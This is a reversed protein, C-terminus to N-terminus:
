EKYLGIGFNAGRKRVIWTEYYTVGQSIESDKILELLETALMPYVTGTDVDVFIFYKASYWSKVKQIELKARFPNNPLWDVEPTNKRAYHLLENGQFPAEKVKTPM